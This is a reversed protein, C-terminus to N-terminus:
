ALIRHAPSHGPSTSWSAQPSLVHKKQHPGKVCPTQVWGLPGLSRDTLRPPQSTRTLGRCDQGGRQCPTLPRRTPSPPPPTFAVCSKPSPLPNSVKWPHAGELPTCVRAQRHHHSNRTLHEPHLTQAKSVSSSADAGWLSLATDGACRGARLLPLVSHDPPSM